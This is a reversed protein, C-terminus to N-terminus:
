TTKKGGTPDPVAASAAAARARDEAAKRVLSGASIFGRLGEALDMVGGLLTCVEPGEAPRVGADYARCDARCARNMDLWCASGDSIGMIDPSDIFPDSRLEKDLEDLEEDRTSM